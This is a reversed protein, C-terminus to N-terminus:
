CSGTRRAEGSMQFPAGSAYGESQIQVLSATERRVNTRGYGDGPCTYQVTVKSSGDEVVFRNCNGARHKLQILETGRRLCIKRSPSGDRFKVTWEGKTLNTLMALQDSQALAPTNLAFVLGGGLAAVGLGGLLTQVMRKM